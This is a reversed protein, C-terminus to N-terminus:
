EKESPLDNRDISVIEKFIYFIDRGERFSSPPTKVKEVKLKIINQKLYDILSKLRQSYKDGKVFSLGNGKAILHKEPIDIGGSHFTLYKYLVGDFTSEDFTVDEINLVIDDGKELPTTRVRETQNNVIRNALLENFQKDFNEETFM